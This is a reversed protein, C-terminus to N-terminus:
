FRSRVGAASPRWIGAFSFIPRSPVDFWHLPLKGDDGRVQGYESFETVPVLCRWEPRILMSRWFPSTLNRVNTVPKEIPQGKAGRVTTPVGWTM